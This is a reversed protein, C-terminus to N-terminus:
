LTARTEPDINELVIAFVYGVRKGAEYWDGEMMNREANYLDVLVPGLHQLM